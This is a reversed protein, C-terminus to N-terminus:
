INNKAEIPADWCGEVLMRYEYAPIDERIVELHEAFGEPNDRIKEYWITPEDTSLPIPLVEKCQNRM